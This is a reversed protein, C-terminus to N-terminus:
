IPRLQFFARFADAAGDPTFNVRVYNGVIEASFGSGSCASVNTPFEYDYNFGRDASQEITLVGSASSILQGVIRSYGDCNQGPSVTSGGVLIACGSELVVPLRQVYVVSM